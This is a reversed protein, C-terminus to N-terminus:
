CRFFLSHDSPNCCCQSKLQFIFLMIKKLSKHVPSLVPNKKFVCISIKFLQVTEKKNAQCFVQSCLALKSRQKMSIAQNNRQPSEGANLKYYEVWLGTFNSQDNLVSPESKHSRNHIRTFNFRADWSANLGSKKKSDAIYISPFLFGTWMVDLSRDSDINRFYQRM